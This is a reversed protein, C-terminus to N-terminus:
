GRLQDHLTELGDLSVGVGSLGAEIGAQLRAPTFRRGGTQIACYMGHDRIALVITTWDKRLYAEGGILSFERTGLRALAEVVELCESTTLEAPRRHGARSGCHMCKLDCALTIEWVVHVPVYGKMDAETRVRPPSDM